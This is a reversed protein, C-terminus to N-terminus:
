FGVHMMPVVANSLLAHSGGWTSLTSHADGAHPLGCRIFSILFERTDAVRMASKCDVNISHETEEVVKFDPPLAPKPHYPVEQCPLKDHLCATSKHLNLVIEGIHKSLAMKDSFFQVGVFYM